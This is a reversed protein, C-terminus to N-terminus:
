QGHTAVELAEVAQAGNTYGNVVAAAHAKKIALDDTAMTASGVAYELAQELDEILDDVDEVGISLRILDLGIGLKTREAPPISGHTMLAPLEALSEV